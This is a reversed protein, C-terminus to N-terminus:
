QSTGAAFASETQLPVTGDPNAAHMAFLPSVVHGVPVGNM